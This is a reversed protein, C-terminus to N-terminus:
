YSLGCRVEEALFEGMETLASVEDYGATDLHPVTDGEVHWALIYSVDDRIRLQEICKQVTQMAKQQNAEDPSKSSDRFWHLHGNEIGDGEMLHYALRVAVDACPRCGVSLLGPESKRGAVLVFTVNDLARLDDLVSDIISDADGRKVKRATSTAAKTLDTKQALPNAM